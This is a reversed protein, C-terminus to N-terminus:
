NGYTITLNAVGGFKNSTTLVGGWSAISAKPNLNTKVPTMWKSTSNVDISYENWKTVQIIGDSVKYSAVKYLNAKVSPSTVMTVIGYNLFGNVKKDQATIGPVSITSYDKAIDMSKSPDLYKNGMLITYTKATKSGPKSSQSLNKVTNTNKSLNEESILLSTMGISGVIVLPLLIKKLKM